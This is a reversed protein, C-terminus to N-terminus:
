VVPQFFIRVYVFNTCITWLFTTMVPQYDSKFFFRAGFCFFAAYLLNGGFAIFVYLIWGYVLGGDGSSFCSLHNGVACLGCIFTM